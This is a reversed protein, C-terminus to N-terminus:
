AYVLPLSNYACAGIQFPRKIKLRISNSKLLKKLYYNEKTENRLM